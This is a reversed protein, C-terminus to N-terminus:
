KDRDDLMDIIFTITAAVWLIIVFIAGVTILLKEIMINRWM